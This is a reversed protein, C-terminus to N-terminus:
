QLNSFNVYGEKEVVLECEMRGDGPIGQQFTYEGAPDEFAEFEIQPDECQLTVEAGELPNGDEDTPQVKIGPQGEIGPITTGAQMPTTNTTIKSPGSPTVGVDTGRVVIPSLDGEIVKGDETM